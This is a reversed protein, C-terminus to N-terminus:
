RAFVLRLDSLGPDDRPTCEHYEDIMMINRGM